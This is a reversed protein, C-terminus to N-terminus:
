QTLNVKKVNKLDVEYEKNDFIVTVKGSKEDFDIPKLEKPDDQKNDKLNSVPYAYITAGKKICNLILEESVRGEEFNEWLKLYKLTYVNM